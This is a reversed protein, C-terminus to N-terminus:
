SDPASEGGHALAQMMLGHPRNQLVELEVLEHPRQESEESRQPKGFEPVVGCDGPFISFAVLIMDAAALDINRRALIAAHFPDVLKLLQEATWYQSKDALM